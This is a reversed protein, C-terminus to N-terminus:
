LECKKLRMLPKEEEILRQCSKPFPIDKNIAEYLIRTFFSSHTDRPNFFNLNIYSNMMPSKDLFACFYLKKDNPVSLAALFDATDEETYVSDGTQVGYADEKPPSASIYNSTVCARAKNYIASSTESLKVKLMLRNLAHGIEHAVFFHGHKENQCSFDSAFVQDNKGFQAYHKKQELSGVQELRDMSLFSEWSSSKADCAYMDGLPDINDFSDNLQKLSQFRNYDDRKNESGNYLYSKARERFEGSNEIGEEKSTNVSLKNNLYDVMIERSHESFRPLLNNIINKKAALFVEDAKRKNSNKTENYIITAKCRNIANIKTTPNKLVTEYTKINKEILDKNLSKKWYDGYVKNCAPIDCVVQELPDKMTTKSITNSINTIGYLHTDLMYRPPTRSEYLKEFNLLDSAFSQANRLSEPNEKYSTKVKKIMGKIVQALEEDSYVGLSNFKSPNTIVSEKLQGAYYAIAEKMEDTADNPILTAINIRDELNKADPNAIINVYPSFVESAMAIQNPISMEVISPSKLYKKLDELEKLKKETALTYINKIISDSYNVKLKKWWSASSYFYDNNIMHSINKEPSGCLAIACQNYLEKNNKKIMESSTSCDPNLPNLFDGNNVQTIIQMSSSLSLGDIDPVDVAFSTNYLFIFQVILNLM